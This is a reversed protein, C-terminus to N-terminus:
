KIKLQSETFMVYDEPSLPKSFYYGQITKAGKDKLLNFQGDTEVGEVIVNLNISTSLKFIGGILDLSHIDSEINDVFSKDIKLVDIPLQSLYSLSSYGTGFDDLSIKFGFDKLENLIKICDVMNDIFAQETIEMTIQYPCVDEERVINIMTDLFDIMRFQKPSINVSINQKIGLQKELFKLYKCAERLVWSGLDEITGTSEAIEIFEMPSVFGLEVDNWRLLAEASQVKTKNSIEVQPQYVLSFSSFDKNNILTRLRAEILNKRQMQRGMEYDFFSYQNKGMAKSHYMAMDSNKFLTKIDKGSAPFFSVGMSASINLEDKDISSINNIKTLVEDCFAPVENKFKIDKFLVIFEDGGIRSAVIRNDRHSIRKFVEAISKLIIDGKEHSFIDNVNKFNDLDLFVIACMDKEKSNKIYSKIQDTINLRNYLGTLSDTYAITKIEEQLRKLEKIHDSRNLIKWELYMIFLIIFILGLAVLMTRKIIGAMVDEKSEIQITWEINEVKISNIYANEGTFGSSEFVPSGDANSISIENKKLINNFSIGAFMDGADITISCFGSLGKNDYIPYVLDFDKDSYISHKIEVELDSRSLNTATKVLDAELPTGRYKDTVNIGSNNSVYTINGKSDALTLKKIQSNRSTYEKFINGVNYELFNEEHQLDYIVAKILSYNSYIENRARSFIHQYNETMHIENKTQESKYYSLVLAIGLISLLIVQIFLKMFNNIFKNEKNM